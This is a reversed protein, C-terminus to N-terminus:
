SQNKFRNYLEIGSGLGKNIIVELVRNMDIKEQVSKEKKNVLFDYRKKLNVYTSNEKGKVMKLFELEDEVKKALEM